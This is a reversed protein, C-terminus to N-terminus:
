CKMQEIFIITSVSLNVMKYKEACEECLLLGKRSKSDCLCCLEESQSNEEKM